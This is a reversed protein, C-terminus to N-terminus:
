MEKGKFFNHWLDRNYMNLETWGFYNCGTVQPKTQDLLHTSPSIYSM